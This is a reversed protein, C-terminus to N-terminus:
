VITWDDMQAIFAVKNVSVLGEDSRYFKLHTETEEIFIYLDGRKTRWLQGEEPMKPPSWMIERLAEKYGEWYALWLDQPFKGSKTNLRKGDAVRLRSIFDYTLIHQRAECVQLYTYSHDKVLVDLAAQIPKKWNQQHASFMAGAFLLGKRRGWYRCKALHEDYFKDNEEKNPYDRWTLRDRYSSVVYISFSMENGGTIDFLWRGTTPKYLSFTPAKKTARSIFLV